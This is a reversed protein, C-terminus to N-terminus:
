PGCGGNVNGSDFACMVTKQLNYFVIKVLTLLVYDYIVEAQQARKDSFFLLCQLLYAEVQVEALLADTLNLKQGQLLQPLTDADFLELKQGAM